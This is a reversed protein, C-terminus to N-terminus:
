SILHSLYNITPDTGVYMFKLKHLIKLFPVGTYSLFERYLIISLFAHILHNQNKIDLILSNCIRVKIAVKTEAAGSNALNRANGEFVEGFAGSGLFKTLTIQDRRIHPLLAIEEDTPIDATTYLANTNHVFNGRRPLERLTALEVDPGRTVTTLTM